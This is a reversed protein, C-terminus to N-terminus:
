SGWVVSTSLTVIIIKKEKLLSSHFAAKSERNLIDM